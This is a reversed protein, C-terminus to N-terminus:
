MGPLPLFELLEISSDGPMRLHPHDEFLGVAAEESEAQVISYGSVGSASDSVAGEALFKGGALPSGLEVIAERNREAWEMWAAMGAEAQEPTAAAMQDTAPVSSRYLVLFKTM